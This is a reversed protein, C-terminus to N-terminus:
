YTREEEAYFLQMVFCFGLFGEFMQLFLLLLDVVVLDVVKM